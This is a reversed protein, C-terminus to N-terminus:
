TVVHLPSRESPRGNPRPNPAVRPVRSQALAEALGSFHFAHELLEAAAFTTPQGAEMVRRAHLACVCRWLAALAVPSTTGTGEILRMIVAARAQVEAEQEATPPKTRGIEYLLRRNAERQLDSPGRLFLLSEVEHHRDIGDGLILWGEVTLSHGAATQQTWGAQLCSFPANGRWPKREPQHLALHALWLIRAKTPRM